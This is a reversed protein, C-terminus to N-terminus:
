PELLDVATLNSDDDQNNIGNEVALDESDDLPTTALLVSPARHVVSPRTSAGLSLRHMAYKTVIAHCAPLSPLSPKRPNCDVHVAPEVFPEPPEPEPM